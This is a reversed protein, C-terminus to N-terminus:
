ITLGAPEGMLYGDTLAVGGRWLPLMIRPVSSRHQRALLVFKEVEDVFPKILCAYRRREILHLIGKVQFGFRAYVAQYGPQLLAAEDAAQRVAGPRQFDDSQGVIHAATDPAVDHPGIEFSRGGRRRQLAVIDAKRHQALDRRARRDLGQAVMGVIDVNGGRHDAAALM